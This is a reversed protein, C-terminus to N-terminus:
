KKPACICVHSPQRALEEGEKRTPGMQQTRGGRARWRQNDGTRYSGATPCCADQEIVRGSNSLSILAGLPCAEAHCIHSHHMRYGRASGPQSRRYHTSSELKPGCESSPNRCRFRQRREVNRRDIHTRIYLVIFAYHVRRTRLHPPPFIAVHGTQFSLLSCADITTRYGTHTLVHASGPVAFTSTSYTLCLQCADVNTFVISPANSM